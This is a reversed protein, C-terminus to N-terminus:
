KKRPRLHSLARRLLAFFPPPLHRPRSVRLHLPSSLLSFFRRSPRKKLDPASPAHLPFVIISLTSSLVDSSLHLHPLSDDLLPSLSTIPSFFLPPSLPQHSFPSRTSTAPTPPLSIRSFLLLHLLSFPLSTPRRPLLVSQAAVPSPTPSRGPARRARRAPSPSSRQTDRHM